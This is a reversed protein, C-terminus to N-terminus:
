VLVNSAMVFWNVTVKQDRPKGPWPIRKHGLITIVTSSRCAAPLEAVQAAHGVAADEGRAEPDRGEGNTVVVRARQRQPAAAPVVHAGIILDGVAVPVEIGTREVGVRAVAGQIQITHHNGLLGVVSGADRGRGFM